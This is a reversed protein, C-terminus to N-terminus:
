FQPREKVLTFSAVSAGPIEDNSSTGSAGASSIVVTAAIGSGFQAAGVFSSGVVVM